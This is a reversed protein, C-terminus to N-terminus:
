KKGNIKCRWYDMMDSLTKDIDIEPQWGLKSIKTNDGIYLPDDIVRLKEKDQEIRVDKTAMKLLKDLIDGVKIGNGSCVNYVDGHEGKKYLTWLANVADRVDTFDRVGELNGVKLFDNNGNEVDVIGKAFDSCADYKKRPGTINFFRVRIIKLNHSKSYQYSLMDQAVKSVSYPSLPRFENTEKVPVEDKKIMGYEASSCISLIIPDIGEKIVADFINFTGIINTELTGKPDKWSETMYSQAALHFIIDPRIKSIINRVNETSKIDLNVFNIKGKLHDINETKEGSWHGIYIEGVNKELLFDALHSGIFGAGGTILVKM